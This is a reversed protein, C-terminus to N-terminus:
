NVASLKAFSLSTQASVLWLQPVYFNIDEDSRKYLLNILYDQVGPKTDKFLYFMHFHADFFEAQFLRMLSGDKYPNVRKNSLETPHIVQQDKNATQSGNLM